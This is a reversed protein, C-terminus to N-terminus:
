RGVSHRRCAHRRAFTRPTTRARSGEEGSEEAKKFSKRIRFEAFHISEYINKVATIETFPHSAYEHSDSPSPVTRPLDLFELDLETKLGSDPDMRRASHRPRTTAATPCSSCRLSPKTWTSALTSSRRWSSRETRYSAFISM